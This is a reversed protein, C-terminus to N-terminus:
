PGSGVERALSYFPHDENFRASGFVTVCPGIFHLARFGRVFDRVIHLTMFFESSRSRPGQLFYREEASSPVTKDHLPRAFLEPQLADFQSLFQATDTKATPLYVAGVGSIAADTPSSRVMKFDKVDCTANAPFNNVRANHIHALNMGSIFPISFRSDISSTLMQALPGIGVSRKEGYPNHFNACYIFVAVGRAALQRDQSKEEVKVM